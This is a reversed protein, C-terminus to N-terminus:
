YEITILPGTASFGGTINDGNISVPLNIGTVEFASTTTFTTIASGTFDGFLSKTYRIGGPIRIGGYQSGTFNTCSALVYFGEELSINVSRKYVGTPFQYELSGSWILPANNLGNSGNYIGIPVGGAGFGASTIEMCFNPNYIKKNIYIPFYGIRNAFHVTTALIANDRPIYNTTVTKPGGFIMNKRKIIAM